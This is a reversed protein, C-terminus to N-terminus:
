VVTMLLDRFRPKLLSVVPGFFIEIVGTCRPTFWRTLGEFGSRDHEDLREILLLVADSEYTTKPLRGRDGCDQYVLM